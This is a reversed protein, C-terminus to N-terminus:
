ARAVPRNEKIALAGAAYGLMAARQSPLNKWTGPRIYGRGEDYVAWSEELKFGYTQNQYPKAEDFPQNFFSYCGRLKESCLAVGRGFTGVGWVITTATMLFSLDSRLDASRSKWPVKIADLHSEMAQICPNGRDEYVLHVGAGPHRQLHHQLCAQYYALPPQLYASHVKSPKGFIDGSRFHLVLDEPSIMEVPCAYARACPELYTKVILRRDSLSLKSLVKRFPRTTLLDGDLVSQRPLRRFESEDMIRLDLAPALNAPKWIEHSPIVVTKIGLAKAIILANWIRFCANGFRGLTKIRLADPTSGTFNRFVYREYRLGIMRGARIEDFNIGSKECYGALLPHLRQRHGVNNVFTCVSFIWQALGSRRLTLTNPSGAPATSTTRGLISSLPKM